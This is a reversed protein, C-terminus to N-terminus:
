MSVCECVCICVTMGYIVAGAMKESGRMMEPSWTMSHKALHAPFKKAGIDPYAPFSKAGTKSESDVQAGEDISITINQKKLCEITSARFSAAHTAAPQEATNNGDVYLHQGDICSDDGAPPRLTTGSISNHLLAHNDQQVAQIDGGRKCASVKNM